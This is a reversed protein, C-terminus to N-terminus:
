KTLAVDMAYREGTLTGRYYRGNEMLLIEGTGGFKISSDVAILRNDYFTQIATFSTHGVVIRQADIKRLVYDMDRDSFSDRTFYGRYWLPGRRGHLLSIRANAGLLESMDETDILFHHYLANLRELNNVQRVMDRSLGGHIYVTENIQVALPLSRLWRGLYTDPGYLEHYFKGTVGSTIRYKQNLYREDGELTMTEHNGLLFHVKGGAREAEVQLNHILWLTETVEDGRDFIDGVVVLHGRGYIWHQQENIVGNRELLKRATMYQGHIDSLAAVREVGSYHVTADKGFERQPDVLEPRFSEFRPLRDYYDPAFVAKGQTRQQTDVWQAVVADGEYYLYPGDPALTDPLTTM